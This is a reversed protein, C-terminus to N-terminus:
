EAASCSSLTAMVQDQTNFDDFRSEPFTTTAHLGTEKLAAVLANAAIRGAAGNDGAVLVSLVGEPPRWVTMRSTSLLAWGPLSFRQTASLVTFVGEGATMHEWAPDLRVAAGKRVVGITKKPTGIRKHRRGSSDLYTIEVATIEGDADCIGALMAPFFPGEGDYTKLPADSIHRLAQPGPLARKIARSRIYRESLTGAVPVAKKWLARAAAIKDVDLRMPAGYGAGIGPGLLRNQRDILRRARLEDLVQRWDSSGSFSHVVLRGNRDVMLSVSRDAPSHGPGPISARDRGTIEGGLTKVIDLLSM